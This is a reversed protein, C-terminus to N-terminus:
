TTTYFGTVITDIHTCGDLGTGGSAGCLLKKNAASTLGGNTMGTIVSTGGIQGCWTGQTLNAVVRSLFVTGATEETIEVTTANAAAGGYARMMLDLVQFQQGAVAPVAIATNAEVAAATHRARIVFVGLMLQAMLAATAGSATLSNLEAASPTVVVESGATGIKLGGVPLGLIDLNKYAGLLAVKSAETTGATTVATTNLQAATATVGSPVLTVRWDVASVATFVAVTTAPISVYGSTHTGGNITDATFPYVLLIAAAQNVITFRM